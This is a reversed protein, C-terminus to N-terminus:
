DPHVVKARLMPQAKWYTLSRWIWEAPGYNMYRLWLTSMLIQLIYLFIGFITVYFTGLLGGYGLGPGLFVFQCVLSHMIYNTFAMRGVPAFISLIKKRNPNPFFVMLMGTYAMGLPVVGLAYAITQFARQTKTRLLRM